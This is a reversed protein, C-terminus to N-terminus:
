EFNSTREGVKWRYQLKVCGVYRQEKNHVKFFCCKNFFEHLKQNHGTMILAQLYYNGNLLNMKVFYSFEGESTKIVPPTIKAAKANTGFFYSDFENMICIGFNPDVISDAKVQYRARVEVLEGTQFIYREQGTSDFMKVSLFTAAGDGWRNSKEQTLVTKEEPADPKKEEGKEAEQIVKVNETELKQEEKQQNMQTYDYITKKPEGVSVVRGENLLVVRDCFKEIIGLAHSVFVITKKEKKLKHFISFCKEQFAADGVALVEDLLLIDANVQIAVSFALRVFMGSSYNKVKLDMFRDLESFAVIENYRQDIQKKSLGLVTGNLYVNERGTLEPNFGVGLELFPSLRGAVCVSGKTPTYISALIKLLTSKGSGNHGIIGLFEGKKVDFSVDHLADFKEYSTKRLLGVFHEKLTTRREHPILFSKSVNQVSIAHATQM